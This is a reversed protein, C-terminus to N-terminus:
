ARAGTALIGDPAGFRGWQEVFADSAPTVSLDHGDRAWSLRAALLVQLCLGGLREVGSADLSVAQGKLGLLQDRLPGAQQIDLVAPLTVVAATM